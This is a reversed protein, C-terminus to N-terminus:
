SINITAGLIPTRHLTHIEVFFLEAFYKKTEIGRIDASVAWLDDLAVPSRGTLIKYNFQPPKWRDAM